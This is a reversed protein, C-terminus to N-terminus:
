FVQCRKQHHGDGWSLMGRVFSMRCGDRSSFLFCLFCHCSCLGLEQKMSMFHGAHQLILVMKLWACITTKHTPQEGRRQWGVPPFALSVSPHEQLGFCYQFCGSDLHTPFQGLFCIKALYFFNRFILFLYVVECLKSFHLLGM